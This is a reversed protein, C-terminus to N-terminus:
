SILLKVEKAEAKKKAEAAKKDSDKKSPSQGDDDDNEATPEADKASQDVSADADDEDSFYDEFREFGKSNRRIEKKAAASLSETDKDKDAADKETASTKVARRSLVPTGVKADTEAAASAIFTAAAKKTPEKEAEKQGGAEEM